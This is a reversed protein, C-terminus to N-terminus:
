QRHLKRVAGRANGPSRRPTTRGAGSYEISVERTFEKVPDLSKKGHRDSGPGNPPSGATRTQAQAPSHERETKM